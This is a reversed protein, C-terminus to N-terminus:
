RPSRPVVRLTIKIGPPPEYTTDSEDGGAWSAEVFCLAERSVMGFTTGDAGDASYWGDEVWGAATFADQLHNVSPGERTENELSMHPGRVVMETDRDVVTWMVGGSPAQRLVVEDRYLFKEAKTSWQASQAYRGFARTAIARASDCAIEYSDYRARPQQWRDSVWPTDSVAAYPAAPESGGAIASSDSTVGSAAERQASKGCGALELTALAV